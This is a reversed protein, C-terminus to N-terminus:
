CNAYKWNRSKGESIWEIAQALRKNRTTETKAEELWEVYEKKHSYSFATFVEQAKPSKNLETILYDPIVMEKKQAETAKARPVVKKGEDTLKMAEQIYKIMIEDSPLDSLSTLKGLNGMGARNDTSLINDPDPMISAKWFGFSCHEKFGAINCMVAGKYVFNPFSWKWAEEVDPCALHILERIHTLIPQAFPAANAIYDDVRELKKGM